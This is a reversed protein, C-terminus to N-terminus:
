RATGSMRDTWESSKDAAARGARDALSRVGETVGSAAESIRDTARHVVGKGIGSRSGLMMWALSVGMLAIPLPNNVAQNKLNGVFEAPAGDRLKETLQDILQGPTMSARLEDLTSSLESRAEETEQELQEAYTM